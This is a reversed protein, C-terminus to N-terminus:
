GSRFAERAADREALLRGLLAGVSLEDVRGLGSHRLVGEADIVALSPTGRFQFATMTQPLAGVHRPADIAVPFRIAYEHVFAELAARTGQVAHHEFVSHLGIVTVHDAPFTAAIRSALPIGHSVCGPCLMQFAELVVVRGRLSALTLPEPTNVWESVKLEPAIM